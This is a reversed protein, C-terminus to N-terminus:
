DHGSLEPQRMKSKNMFSDYYYTGIMCAITGYRQMVKLHEHAFEITEDEEDSTSFNMKQAVVSDAKLNELVGRMINVMPSNTKKTLSTVSTNTSNTRKRTNASMLSDDFEEFEDVEIMEDCGERNDEGPICSSSGDVAVQDFMQELQGLNEPPANRLKKWESKGKTNDKWFQEDAVVTGNARGFGTQKNLWLWFQYLGKLQSWRNRLQKTSHRLGVSIYYKKAINKFGRNTIFYTNTNRARKEELCIDCFVYTNESSWNAKDVPGGMQTNLDISDMGIPNVPSAMTTPQTFFDFPTAHDHEHDGHEMCLVSCVLLLASRHGPLTYRKIGDLNGDAM